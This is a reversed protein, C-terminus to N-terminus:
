GRGGRCTGPRGGDRDPRRRGARGGRRLARARGAGNRPPPAGRLVALDPDTSLPLQPGTAEAARVPSRCRSRARPPPRSRPSTEDADWLRLSRWRGSGPRPEPPAAPAGNWAPPELAVVERTHRPAELAHGDLRPLAAAPIPEPEPAAIPAPVAPGAPAPEAAVPQAAVPEVVAPEMAWDLPAEPGTVAAPESVPGPAASAQAVPAAAEVAAPAVPQAAAPALLSLFEEYLERVSRFRSEPRENLARRYFGEVAEPLEPATLRLEPIDEDPTLGTLM